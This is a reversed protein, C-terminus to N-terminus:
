DMEYEAELETKVDTELDIGKFYYALREMM